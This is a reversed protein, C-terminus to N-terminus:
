LRGRIWGHDPCEKTYKNSKGDNWWHRGINALSLNKRHEESKPIGLMRKSLRDIYEASRKKGKLRESQEKRKQPNSWLLKSANSTKLREELNTYRRKHSNSMKKKAEESMKSGKRLVMAELFNEKQIDTWGKFTREKGGNTLNYFKPNHAANVRILFKEEYIRSEKPKEFHRIKRIRFAELGEKNIIENVIRSSTQYGYETMFISSDTKSIRDKSQAHRSGAYYIGTRLHEIIYFFPIGTTSTPYIIQLQM